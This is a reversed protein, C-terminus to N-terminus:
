PLPQGPSVALDAYPAAVTVSSEIVVSGRAAEVVATAAGGALHRTLEMTVRGGPEIPVRALDPPATLGQATILRVSLTTASSGVNVVSLVSSGGAESGAPVVWRSSSAPVGFATEYGRGGPVVPSTRREAVLPVDNASEISIGHRTGKSLHEGVDVTVQRGAPVAVESLEPPAVRDGETFFSIGVLAERESPNIMVIAEEGDLPVEGGAFFWRDAPDRAGVDLSVGRVGERSIVSYRSAVVRGTTATLEVGVTPTEEVYDSLNVSAQSLAPVLLDRLRAPVFDRDPTLLRVRVVAEERFPNAVLLFHDEGRLTSGYPFFWKDWPQMSCRSAAVGKTRGRATLHTASAQGFTETVGVADPRQFETLSVASRQGPGLMAQQVNSQGSGGVAFRRLGLASRGLNTASMVADIDEGGPAPCYWGASVFRGPDELRVSRPVPRLNRDLFLALGLVLVFAGLFAFEQRRM